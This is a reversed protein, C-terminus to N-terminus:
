RYGVWWLSAGRPDGERRDRTRPATCLRSASQGGPMAGTDREDARVSLQGNRLSM